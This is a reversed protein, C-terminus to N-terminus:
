CFIVKIVLMFANGSNWLSFFYHSKRVKLTCFKQGSFRTTYFTECIYQRGGWRARVAYDGNDDYDDYEDYDYVQHLHHECSFTPLPLRESAVRGGGAQHIDDNDGIDFVASICCFVAFIWCFNLMVLVTKM